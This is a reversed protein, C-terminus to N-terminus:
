EVQAAGARILSYAKRAEASTKMLDDLAAGYTLRGSKPIHARVLADLTEQLDAVGTNVKRVHDGDRVAVSHARWAEKGEPTSFVEDAEKLLANREAVPDWPTLNDYTNGLGLDTGCDGCYKWYAMLVQEGCEPCLLAQTRGQLIKAGRLMDETTPPKLDWAAVRPTTTTPRNDGWGEPRQDVLAGPAKTNGTM